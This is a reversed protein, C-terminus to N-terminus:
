KTQFLLENFQFRSFIYIKRYKITENDYCKKNEPTLIGYDSIRWTHLRSCNKNLGRSRKEPAMTSAKMAPTIFESLIKGILLETKEHKLNLTKYIWHGYEVIWSSPPNIFM